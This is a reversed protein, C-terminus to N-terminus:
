DNLGLVERMEIMKSNKGANFSEGLAMDVAQKLKDVPIHKILLDELWSNIAELGVKDQIMQILKQGEDTNKYITMGLGLYVDNIWYSNDNHSISHEGEIDFVRTASCGREGIGIIVDDWTAM